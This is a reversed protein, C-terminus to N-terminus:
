SGVLREVTALLAQQDFSRKAMYADAGAEIGSVQDEESGRSTVIVIPLSSRAADARIARTLEIGDLEPMELDTIVLSIGPDRDLAGLADRGDRATVVPYGAAELISRQLERVTFSDEVVLVKPAAAPLEAADPATMEAAPRSGRTLMAAEILLAIRGDGLIAAGLYGEVGALLPGLPKVVVEEEGILADCTAIARRGGVSVILAPPRDGLPAAVAGILEAFDAVPVSRGRIELTPRGELTFTETALVVREVAALPVGYVAGGREFLLVEMLALALPLVQIVETGRGPESRVELSGGLARAYSRVADLGVGRGALDTVAAATSYGPRALVETLSGEHRAKDLVEPSVGRGDDAVVIEILSGRPVARLEVRGRARKGARQREAPSEVGHMVANRLLHGLPESLSELIVRDIETEAGTVVFEIQKGAARALDRVVRPLRGAIVALPLTRMGVATDKLDDLLRAGAGLMEALDQSQRAQAGLSHALRSRYQMIEGAVDLLHDIKGAPVRLAKGEAPVPRPSLMSATRGGPEPAAPEPAAPEASSAAPPSRADPANAESAAQGLTGAEGDLLAARSAALEDLLGAIPEGTGSIHARLAATAHLLPTALEPPFVKAERVGALVDEAANALACVDDFGLMGAAGKITHANRFLSDVAEAGAEGSEVALLASDMQDLRGASEDRFLETLDADQESM